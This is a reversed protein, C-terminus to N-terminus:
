GGGGEEERIRRRKRKSGYTLSPSPRCEPSPSSPSPSLLLLLLQRSKRAGHNFVEQTKEAAIIRTACFLPAAPPYDHISGQIMGAPQMEFLATSLIPNPERTRDCSRCCKLSNRGSITGSRAADGKRKVGVAPVNRSSFTVAFPSCPSNALSIAEGQRRFFGSRQAIEREAGEAALPGRDGSSGSLMRGLTRRHNCSSAMFGM